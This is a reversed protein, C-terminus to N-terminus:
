VSGVMFLTLDPQTHKPKMGPWQDSCLNNSRFTVYGKFYHCVCVFFFSILNFLELFFLALSGGRWKIWSHAM